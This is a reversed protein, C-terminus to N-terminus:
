HSEAVSLFFFSQLVGEACVHSLVSFNEPCWTKVHLIFFTSGTFCYSVFFHCWSTLMYELPPELLWGSESHVELAVRGGARCSQVAM